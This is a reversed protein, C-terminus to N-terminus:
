IDHEETSSSSTSFNYDRAFIVTNMIQKNRYDYINLIIALITGILCLLLLFLHMSHFHSISTLNKPSSDADLLDGIILPGIALGTNSVAQLIGYATGFYKEKVLYNVTPYLALQVITSGMGILSM